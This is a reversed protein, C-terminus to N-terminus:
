EERHMQQIPFAQVRVFPMEALERTGHMHPVLTHEEAVPKWQSMEVLV